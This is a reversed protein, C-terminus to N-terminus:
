SGTGANQLAEAYENMEDATMEGLKMFRVVGEADIVFTTPIAQVGFSRRASSDPDLAVPLEDLTNEDLFARVQDSTEDFNITLLAIEGARDTVFDAFAPLERVCPPCTTQWFNLFLPQGEYDRLTIPSGNMDSLEFYPAQYNLLTPSGSTEISPLGSSAPAAPTQYEMALMILAATIGLLPIIMFIILVPSPRTSQQPQKEQTPNSM